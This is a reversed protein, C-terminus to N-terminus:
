AYGSRWRDPHVRDAPQQFWELVGGIMVLPQEFWCESDTTRVPDASLDRRCRKAVHGCCGRSCSVALAAVRMAMGACGHPDDGLDCAVAGLQRYPCIEIKGVPLTFKM